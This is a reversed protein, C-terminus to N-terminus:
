FRKGMSVGFVIENHQRTVWDFNINPIVEIAHHLSFIYGTSLRGLWASPAGSSWKFGPGAAIYTQNPLHVLLLTFQENETIGEKNHPVNEYEFSVGFPYVLTRYYELAYTFAHANVVFTDGLFFSVFHNEEERPLSYAAYAMSQMLYCWGLVGIWKKFFLTMGKM